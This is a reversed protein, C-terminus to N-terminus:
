CVGGPTFSEASQGGDLGVAPVASQCEQFQEQLVSQAVSPANRVDVFHVPGSNPLTVCRM